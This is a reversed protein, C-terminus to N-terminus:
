DLINSPLSGREASETPGAFVIGDQEFLDASPSVADESEVSPEEAVAGDAVLGAAFGAILKDFEALNALRQELRDNEEQLRENDALVMKHQALPILNMEPHTAAEAM